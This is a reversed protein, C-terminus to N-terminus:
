DPYNEREWFTRSPCGLRSHCLPFIALATRQNILINILECVLGM